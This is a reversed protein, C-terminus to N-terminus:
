AAWSMVGGYVGDTIIIEYTTGAELSSIDFWEPLKVTQPLSVICNSGATFRVVISGSAPPTITLESIATDCIYRVNPMGTISATAGTVTEVLPIDAEIGLMTQIATKQAQPYVGVTEGSASAMDVGAAKALGYFVAEHQLNPTIPRYSDNGTKIIASSASRTRLEHTSTNIDIGTSGGQSVQAVGFQRYAMQPINAVGNNLISTENLQVDKVTNQKLFLETDARYEVEIDGNANSWITNNGLLATIQHGTLTQEQPTALPYALVIKGQASLTKVDELTLGSGNPSIIFNGADAGGWRAFATGSAVGERIPFVSCLGTWSSGKRRDNFDHNSYSIYAGQTWANADDLTEVKWGSMLKGSVVELEGGYVPSPFSIDTKTIHPEEYASASSGLEIQNHLAETIESTNTNRWAIKVNAPSTLSFSKSQIAGGTGAVTNDILLRIIYCNTTDTSFVYNGAPLDISLRRYSNNDDQIGSGDIGWSGYSVASDSLLNKKGGFVSLGNWPLISRINQPSPDGNWEQRPLLNVKLSKIPLDDAGDSFVVPNGAASNFIVPASRKRLDKYYNDVQKLTVLENGTSM